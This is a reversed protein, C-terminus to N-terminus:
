TPAPRKTTPFSCGTKTSYLTLLSTRPKLLSVAASAPAMNHQYPPRHHITKVELHLGGTSSCWTGQQYISPGGTLGIFTKARGAYCTADHIGRTYESEEQWVHDHKGDVEEWRDEVVGTTEKEVQRHDMHGAELVDMDAPGRGIYQASCRRRVHFDHRLLSLLLTESEDGM